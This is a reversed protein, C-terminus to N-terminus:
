VGFGRIGGVCSGTLHHLTLSHTRTAVLWDSPRKGAGHSPHPMRLVERTGATVLCQLVCRKHELILLDDTLITIGDVIGLGTVGAM